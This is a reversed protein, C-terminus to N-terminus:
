LWLYAAPKDVERSEKFFNVIEKVACHIEERVKYLQM